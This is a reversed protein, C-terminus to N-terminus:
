METNYGRQLIEMIESNENKPMPSLVFVRFNRFIKRKKTKKEWAIDFSNQKNIEKNTTTYLVIVKNSQKETIEANEVQSM